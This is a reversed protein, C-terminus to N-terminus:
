SEERNNSYGAILDDGEFDTQTERTNDVVVEDVSVYRLESPQILDGFVIARCYQSPTLTSSPTNHISKLLEEFMECSHTKGGIALPIKIENSNRIYRMLVGDIINYRM